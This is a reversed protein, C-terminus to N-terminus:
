GQLLEAALVELGAVRSGKVLVADGKGLRLSRAMRLAADVSEVVEVGYLREDVAVARVGLTGALAAMERHAEAAGPGLEAMHGLFAIRRDADVLALSRLAAAVSLPSANYADNIILAGSETRGVEMRWPSLQTTAVGAAVDDLTADCALAGAAAALANSVQHVGRVALHLEVSGWPSRLTFSPTLDADLEVHEATVDAPQDLGYTVVTAVTRERMRAVRVDDANLIATGTAPLAEVLEGKGTAVDDVTGFLETHVAGVVTVIGVTPRAVEALQRIHGIGRAGMEIVAAETDDPASALTIPMGLENNFNGPSAATVYRQSLIGRLVDKVTTKGVSGTIGVVRDPLRDRALAGIALLATGTDAVVVANGGVPERATLYARMAVPDVFDHGDREAVIPVFLQGPELTRSDISIGDFSVDDGVVRGGTAAAVEGLTIRV